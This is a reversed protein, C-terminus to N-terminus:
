GLDPDQTAVRAYGVRRGRDASQGACGEHRASGKLVGGAYGCGSLGELSRRESRLGDAIGRFGIASPPVRTVLRKWFLESAFTTSRFRALLFGCTRTRVGFRALWGGPQGARDLLRDNCRPWAAM